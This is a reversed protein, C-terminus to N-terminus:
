KRGYLAGDLDSGVLAEDVTRQVRRRHLKCSQISPLSKEGQLKHVVPVSRVDDVSFGASVLPRVCAQCASSSDGVLDRENVASENTQPRFRLNM